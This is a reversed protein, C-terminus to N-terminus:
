GGALQKIPNTAREHGVQTAPGHGPYLVTADPLTFIKHQISHVLQAISGGPFDTRGFGGRMVVDGDFVIGADRVVFAVHGSSHGPVDLIDLTLGAFLLIDGEGVLQDAPPSIIDFGFQRSVNWVPDSLLPADKVGIILPAAPFHAKMAENGAIHDVHGHTNLIAVPTLQCEALVDFILQPEMGPDIVICEPGDRWVIYTNENFPMSEITQIQVTM